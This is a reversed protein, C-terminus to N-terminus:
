RLQDASVLGTTPWRPNKTDMIVQYFSLAEAGICEAIDLARRNEAMQVPSLAPNGYESLYIDAGGALVKLEFLRQKDMMGGYPHFSIGDSKLTALRRIDDDITATSALGGAIVKIAANYQKVMEYVKDYWAKYAVFDKPNEAFISQNVENGVEVAWINSGFATLIDQTFKAAETPDLNRYGFTHDYDEQFQPTPMVTVMVKHGRRAAENAADIYPQLGYRKYTGYVIFMRLGRAGLLQEATDFVRERRVGNQQFVAHNDDQFMPTFDPDPTCPISDPSEQPKTVFSKTQPDYTLKWQSRGLQKKRRSVAKLILTHTKPGASVPQEEKPPTVAFRKVVTRGRKLRKIKWERYQNDPGFKKLTIQREDKKRLTTCAKAVIKFIEDGQKNQTQTDRFELMIRNKAGKCSKQAAEADIAGYSAGVAAFVGVLAAAARISRSFERAGLAPPTAEVSESAGGFAENYALENEASATVVPTEPNM